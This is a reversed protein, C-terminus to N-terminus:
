IPCFKVLPFEESNYYVKLIQKVSGWTKMVTKNWAKAAESDPVVLTMLWGLRLNGANQLDTANWRISTSLFVESLLDLKQGACKRYLARDWPKVSADWFWHGTNSLVWDHDEGFKVVQAAFPLGALRSLVCLGILDDHTIEDMTGPKKNWLGFPSKLGNMVETIWMADHATFEGRLHKIVLATALTLIPNGDQNITKPNPERGLFGSQDRFLSLTEDYTMLATGQM